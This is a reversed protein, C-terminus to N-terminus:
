MKGHTRVTQGDYSVESCFALVKDDVPSNIISLKIKMTINYNCEAANSWFNDTSVKLTSFMLKEIFFSISNSFIRRRVKVWYLKAEAFDVSVSFWKFSGDILTWIIAVNHRDIFNSYVKGSSM